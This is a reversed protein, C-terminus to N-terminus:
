DEPGEGSAHRAARLALTPDLEPPSQERVALARDVLQSLSAQHVAHASQDRAWLLHGQGAVVETSLPLTPAAKTSEQRAARACSEAAELMRARCREADIWVDDKGWVLTVFFREGHRLAARAVMHRFLALERESARLLLRFERCARLSGALVGHDTLDRANRTLAAVDYVSHHRLILATLMVYIDAIIWNLARRVPLFLQSWVDAFRVLVDVFDAITRISVPIRKPMDLPASLALVAAVKGCEEVARMGHDLAVLAGRSIGVLIFPGEYHSVIPQVRQWVSASFADPGYYAGKHLPAEFVFHTAHALRPEAALLHQTNEYAAHVSEGTGTYHLVVCRQAEDDPQEDRADEAGRALVAEARSSLPPLRWIGDSVRTLPPLDSTPKGRRRRFALPARVALPLLDPNRVFMAIVRYSGIAYALLASWLAAGRARLRANASPRASLSM